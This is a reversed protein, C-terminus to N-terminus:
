FGIYEIEEMLQIGANDRVQQKIYSILMVVDQATATGTNIIFNAHLPSVQAGGISFGKLGLDDILKAAPIDTQDKPNRFVCGACKAAIDQTDKRLTVLQQMEEKIKAQNGRALQLLVDIIVFKKHKFISDRYGFQCQANYLIQEEGQENIVTVELVFEQMQRGRAGLNAWVAGGVSAPVGIAYELGTLEHKMTQTILGSMRVGSEARVQANGENVAVHRLESKIVLGPFGADSVLVDSGGGLIVWPTKTRRAEALAYFLEEKTKVVVFYRAPGGIKFTTYPALVINHQLNPIHM